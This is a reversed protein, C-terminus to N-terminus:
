TCVPGCLARADGSLGIDSHHRSWLAMGRRARRGEDHEEDEDSEEEGGEEGGMGLDDTEIEEEEEGQQQQAHQQRTSHQGRGARQATGAAAEQLARATTRAAKVGAVAAVAATQAASRVVTAPSPPLGQPTVPEGASFPTPPHAAAAADSPAHRSRGRMAPTRAAGSPEYAGAGAGDVSCAPTAGFCSNVV